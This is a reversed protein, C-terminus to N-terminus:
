SKTARLPVVLACNKAGGTNVTLWRGLRPEQGVGAILLAVFEGEPEGGSIRPAENIERPPRLWTANLLPNHTHPASVLQLSNIIGPVSISFPLAQFSKLKPDLGWLRIHGDYSGQIVTM